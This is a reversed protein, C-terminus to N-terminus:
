CQQLKKTNLTFHNHIMRGALERLAPGIREFEKSKDFFYKAGLRMAQEEIQPQPANTMMVAAIDPDIAQAARLVDLGSTHNALHLDVLIMHPRQSRISEIASPADSAVGALEITEISALIESQILEVMVPLDEVI